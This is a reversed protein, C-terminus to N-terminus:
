IIKFNYNCYEEGNDTRNQKIEHNLENKKKQNLISLIQLANM